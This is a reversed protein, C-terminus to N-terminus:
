RHLVHHWIRQAALELASVVAVIALIGTSGLFAGAGYVPSLVIAGIAFIMPFDDASDIARGFTYLMLMGGLMLVSVLMAGEEQMVYLIPSLWAASVGAAVPLFALGWHGHCALRPMFRGAAGAVLQFVAGPLILSM